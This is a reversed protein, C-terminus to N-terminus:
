TMIKETRNKRIRGRAKAYRKPAETSSSPNLLEEESVGLIEAFKSLYKVDPEVEGTEWRAVTSRTVGVQEAFEEQTIERSLRLRKIEQVVRRDLKGPKNMPVEVNDSPHFLDTETVNFARALKPLMGTSPLKTGNEWSYIAFYGCGVAHALEKRSMGLMLRRRKIEKALRDKLGLQRLAM